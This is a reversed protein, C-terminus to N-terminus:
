ARLTLPNLDDESAPTARDGMIVPVDYLRGPGLRRWFHRLGPVVVKVTALPLDPRSYDLVITELGRAQARAVCSQVEERLDMQDHGPFETRRRQPRDERPLLFATDPLESTTWLAQISSGPEFIQNAETIARQLAVLPDLHAGFGAVFRGSDHRALAVFVPIQLDTTLDLAWLRWGLSEYHARLELCFGDAFSEFDVGRKELRNYWWIGVADREALELFGQLVAEELCNGASHGNPDFPCVRETAPQPKQNFCYSAPLYRRENASISWCPTWDIVQTAEYCLPAHHRFDGSSDRRRYQAESFNLLRRPDIAEGPLDTLAARVIPEDGQWLSAYRELAEAVASTRAQAATKGKGMTPRYYTEDEALSGVAPCLYYGAVFVHRLPHSREEHPEVRAVAGTVPSVLHSCRDFTEEASVARHGGDAAAARSVTQLRVPATVVRKMWEGDGCHPCQPRRSVAHLRPTLSSLDYTLLNGTVASSPGRVVAEALTMAALYAALKMTAPLGAVPPRPPAPVGANSLYMEVPRNRELRHQLCYWCAAGPRTTFMPGLWVTRGVPKFPVFTAQTRSLEALRATAARDLYDECVVV